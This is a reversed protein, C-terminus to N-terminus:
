YRILITPFLPRTIKEGAANKIDLRNDMYYELIKYQKYIEASVNDTDYQKKIYAEHRAKNKKHQEEEKIKDLTEEVLTAENAQLQLDETSTIQEGAVIRRALDKVRFDLLVKQVYEDESKQKIDDIYKQVITAHAKELEQEQVNTVERGLYRRMAIERLMEGEFITYSHKEKFKQNREEEEKERFYEEEEQRSYYYNTEYHRAGRNITGFLNEMEHQLTHHAVSTNIIALETKEDNNDKGDLMSFIHAYQKKYYEGRTVDDM